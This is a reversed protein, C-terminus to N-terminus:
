VLTDRRVALPRHTGGAIGNGRGVSEHKGPGNSEAAVSLYQRWFEEGTLDGFAARWQRVTRGHTLLLCLSTWAGRALLRVFDSHRRRLVTYDESYPEDIAVVDAGRLAYWNEDKEALAYAPYAGQPADARFLQRLLCGVLAAARRICSKPMPAAKQIPLGYDKPVVEPALGRRIGLLRAHVIQPDAKLVDPGRRYDDAAECIMRANLYDLAVLRGILRRLLVGAFTTRSPTFHLVTLAMLNRLDYYGYCSRKKMYFPEHWVALGPMSVTSIGARMMRCGFEIDDGRIFFPM